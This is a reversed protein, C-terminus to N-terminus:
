GLRRGAGRSGARDRREGSSVAIHVVRHVVEGLRPVSSFSDGDVRVAFHDEGYVFYADDFGGVDFAERRSSRPAALSDVIQADDPVRRVDDAAVDFRGALCRVPGLPTSASRRALTVCTPAEGCGGLVDGGVPSVARRGVRRGPSGVPPTACKLERWM